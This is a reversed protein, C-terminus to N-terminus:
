KAETYIHGFINLYLYASFLQTVRKLCSTETICFVLCANNGSLNLLECYIVDSLKIM